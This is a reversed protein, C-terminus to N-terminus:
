KLISVNEGALFMNDNNLVSKTNINKNKNNTTSADPSPLSSSAGDDNSTTCTQDRVIDKCYYKMIM